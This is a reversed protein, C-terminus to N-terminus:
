PTGPRDGGRRSSAQGEASSPAGAGARRRAEDIGSKLEEAERELEAAPRSADGLVIVDPKIDGALRAKDMIALRASSLKETRWAKRAIADLFAASEAVREDRTQKLYAMAADKALAIARDVTIPKCGYKETVLKVIRARSNQPWLAQVAEIITAERESGDPRKVKKALAAEAEALPVRSEGRITPRTKYGRAHPKNPKGDKRKM